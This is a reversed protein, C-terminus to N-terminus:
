KGYFADGYLKNVIDIPAAYEDGKAKTFGSARKNIPSLVAALEPKAADLGTLAELLKAKLEAPFAKNVIIAFEPIPDSTAIIRVTGADVGKRAVSETLGGADAKGSEVAKLVNAHTGTYSFSGLGGDREIGAQKLMWRPYLHSGTSDENGFSFAKGKLDALAQVPSDKPVIVCSNTFPKGDLCLIAVMELGAEPYNRALKAWLTPSTYAFQHRLTGVDSISAAYDKGPKVQVERGLAATLYDALPKFKKAMEIPAELPLVNLQLPEAAALGAWTTLLLLTCTFTSRM